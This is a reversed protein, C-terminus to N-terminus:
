KTRAKLAEALEVGYLCADNVELLNIYELQPIIGILKKNVGSLKTDNLINSGAKLMEEVSTSDYQWHAQITTLNTKPKRSATENIYLFLEKNIYGSGPSGERCDGNERYCTLSSNWNADLCVGEGEVVFVHGGANLASMKMAQNITLGKLRDCSGDSGISPMLNLTAMTQWVKGKCDDTNPSYHSNVLLIFEGPHSNAWTVVETLADKLSHDVTLIGHHMYMGKANCLPRIDFARVGCNLQATFNGEQSKAIEWFADTTLIYGTGSDHSMLMPWENLLADGEGRIACAWYCVDDLHNVEKPQPPRRFCDSEFESLNFVVIFGVGGTAGGHAASPVPPGDSPPPQAGMSKFLLITNGSNIDDFLVAHNREHAISGGFSTGVVCHWPGKGPIRNFEPDQDMITKINEAVDKSLAHKGLAESVLIRIKNTQEDDFDCQKIRIPPLSELQKRLADEEEDIDSM